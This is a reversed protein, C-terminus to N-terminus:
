DKENVVEEFKEASKDWTFNKRVHESGKLGLSKLTGECNLEYAKRMQARLSKIDIEPMVNGESFFLRDAQILDGTEVFLPYTDVFDMYGAAKNYPIIVPLGCAMAEIITLGFAEGRTPNVFCDSSHYLEIIEEETRLDQDIIIKPAKKVGKIIENIKANVDFPQAWPTTVKLYLCVDDKDPDFEEAFAKILYPTGKRDDMSGNTWSNLNLFVFTNKDVEKLQKKEEPKYKDPDVGEPVVYINARVGSNAFLMKTAKSPVLIKNYQNCSEIWNQPLKSGEHVFFGYNLVGPNIQQFDPRFTNLIFLDKGGKNKTDIPKFGGEKLLGDKDYDSNYYDRININFGRKILARCMERNHKSVGTPNFCVGNLYFSMSM